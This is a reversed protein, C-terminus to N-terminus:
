LEKSVNKPLVMRLSDQLEESMTEKLEKSINIIASKFDKDALDLMLAEASQLGLALLCRSPFFQGLLHATLSHPSQPHGHPCRCSAQQLSLDCVGRHVHSCLFPSGFPVPWTGWPEARETAVKEEPQSYGALM